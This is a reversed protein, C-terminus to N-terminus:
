WKVTCSGGILSQSVPALLKKRADVLAAPPIGPNLERLKDDLRDTLVVQQYSEREQAEGDPAIDPGNLVTYGLGDLWELTAEEVVSETFFAM